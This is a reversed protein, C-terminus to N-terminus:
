SSLFAVSLDLVAFQQVGALPKFRLSTVLSKFVDEDRILLPEAGHGWVRRCGPSGDQVLELFRPRSRELNPNAFDRLGVKVTPEGEVPRSKPRRTEVFVDPEESRQELDCNVLAANLKGRSRVKRPHPRIDRDPQRWTALIEESDDFGDARVPQGIVGPVGSIQQLEHPLRSDSHGLSGTQQFLVDIEVFLGDDQHPPLRPTCKRDRDERM